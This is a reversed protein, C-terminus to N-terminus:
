RIVTKKGDRVYLGKGPIKVRRGQLDYYRSNTKAKRNTESIGSAEGNNFSFTIRSSANEVETLVDAFEFYARYAMMKTKGTSYWFKGDSLFLDEDSVTFNAEYTGIMYGREAKKTGVQVTPEEEPDIDVGDATFETIASSVKIIYPHNAEIATVLTFGVNIAVIDGADNEESSWSSFNALQVDSGFATKVQEETMDFPLCITNWINAALTRKVRVNVGAASAPATTSTEDLIVTHANVVVVNFTATTALTTGNVRVNNVTVPYTGLPTSAPVAIQVTAIDGEGSFANASNSIAGVVGSEESFMANWAATANVASVTFSSPLVVEFHMSSMETAEAIHLNFSVTEGSALAEIDGAVSITQASAGGYFILTTLLSIFYKKM